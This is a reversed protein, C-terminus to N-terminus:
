LVGVPKEPENLHGEPQSKRSGGRGPPRGRGRKIVSPSAQDKPLASSRHSTVSAPEKFPDTNNQQTKTSIHSMIPKGGTRGGIGAPAGTVAKETM